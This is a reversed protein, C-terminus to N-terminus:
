KHPALPHLVIEPPKPDALEFTQKYPEYGAARVNLVLKGSPFAKELGGKPVQVQGDANTRTVFMSPRHHAQGPFWAHVPEQPQAPQITVEANQVVLGDPTKVHLTLMAAAPTQGFAAVACATLAVLRLLCTSLQLM